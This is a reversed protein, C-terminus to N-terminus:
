LFRLIKVRIIKNISDLLNGIVTEENRAAIVIAYKHKKKAPKFKRTFFVGLLIFIARYLVMTSLILGITNNISKAHLYLDDM